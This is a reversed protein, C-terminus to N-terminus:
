ISRAGIHRETAHLITDDPVEPNGNFYALVFGEGSEGTCQYAYSRVELDDKPM